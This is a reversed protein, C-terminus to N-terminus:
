SSLAVENDKLKQLGSKLGVGIELEKTVNSVLILSDIKSVVM